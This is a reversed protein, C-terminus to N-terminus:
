EEVEPVTDEDNTSIIESDEKNQTDEELANSFDILTAEPDEALPMIYLDERALQDQRNKKYRKVLQIIYDALGIGVSIALSTLLIERQEETTYSSAAFPNPAYASDFNHTGYRIGSYVLSTNLTVFPMAGLSVIEFRRLDKLGQPFEEEKYPEPTTDEAFLPNAVNVLLSFFVIKLILKIKNM